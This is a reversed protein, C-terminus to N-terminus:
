EKLKDKLDVAIGQIIGAAWGIDKAWEERFQDVIDPGFRHDEEIGKYVTFAVCDIPDHDGTVLDDLAGALSAYYSWLLSDAQALRDAIEHVERQLTLTANM